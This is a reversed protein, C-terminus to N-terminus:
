PWLVLPRKVLTPSSQLIIEHFYVIGPIVNITPIELQVKTPMGLANSQACTCLKLKFNDDSISYRRYVFQSRIDQLARSVNNFGVGPRCARIRLNPHEWINRLRIWASRRYQIPWSHPFTHAHLSLLYWFELTCLVVTEPLFPWSARLHYRNYVSVTIVVRLWMGIDSM